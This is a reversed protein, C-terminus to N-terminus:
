WNNKFLTFVWFFGELFNPGTVEFLSQGKKSCHNTNQGVLPSKVKQGAIVSLKVNM